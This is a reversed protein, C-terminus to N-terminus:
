LLSCHSLYQAFEDGRFGYQVMKKVAATGIGQGRQAESGITIGFMASRNKQDQHYLSVFGVPQKEVMIKFFPADPSFKALKARIKELDAEPDYFDTNTEDQTWQYFLEADDSTIPAFDVQPVSNEHEPLNRKGTDALLTAATKPCYKNVEEYIKREFADFEEDEHEPSHIYFRNRACREREDQSFDAPDTGQRRLDAFYDIATKPYGLMEGIESNLEPNEFGGDQWLRHFLGQAKIANAENQAIYVDLLHEEPLTADELYEEPITRQETVTKLNLENL